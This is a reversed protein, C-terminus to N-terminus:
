TGRENRDRGKRGYRSIATRCRWVDLAAPAGMARSRRTQLSTVSPEGRIVVAKQGIFWDAPLNGWAPYQPAARHAALAAEDRYVEYFYITNPARTTRFSTL